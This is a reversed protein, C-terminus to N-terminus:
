CHHSPCECTHGPVDIRCCIGTCHTNLAGGRLHSTREQPETVFSKVALEDLKIKKPM